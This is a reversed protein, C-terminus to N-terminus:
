LDFGSHGNATQIVLESRFVVPSPVLGDTESILNRGKFSLMDSAVNSTM